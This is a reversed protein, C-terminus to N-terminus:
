KQEKAKAELEKIRMKAKGNEETLANIKASAENFADLFQNRQARTLELITPALASDPQQQAVASTLLMFFAVGIRILHM